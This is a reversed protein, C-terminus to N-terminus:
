AGRRLVLVSCPAVVGVRESVSAMARVGTLMRSGTIVLSARLELAVEAIRSPAHGELELTVPEVGTALQLAAAEEALEHRVDRGGHDVHLLAVQANHRRALTAALAITPGMAPSGDTAVLIDRPFETGYRPHRAILVPVPSRHLATLATSGLLFGSTRNRGHTGLVLLDHRQAEELIVTRPDDGHRVLEAADVGAALAARRAKDLAQDAAHPGLSAMRTAGFGRADTVSMFTLEADDGALTLAQAIAEDASPGVDVACLIRPFPVSDTAAEVNRQAQKTSM